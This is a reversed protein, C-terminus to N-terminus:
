WNGMATDAEGFCCPGCLGLDEVLVTHMGCSERTGIIKGDEKAREKELSDIEETLKKTNISM